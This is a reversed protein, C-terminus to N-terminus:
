VNVANTLLTQLEGKEYMEVMIDCGGIFEGNVYLQPITPWNAFLKIGQRIEDDDLVNYSTFAVDCERLIQLVKGTFGCMPFDATGKIYIVIPDASVQKQITDQITM